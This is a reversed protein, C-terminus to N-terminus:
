RKRTWLVATFIYIFYKEISIPSCPILSLIDGGIAFSQRKSAQGNPNKRALNHSIAVQHEDTSADLCFFPPRKEKKSGRREEWTLRSPDCSITRKHLKPLGNLVVAVADHASVQVLSAALKEVNEHTIYV